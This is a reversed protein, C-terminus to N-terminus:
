HDHNKKTLMLFLQELQNSKNKLSVVEINHQLLLTILKGIGEKREIEVELTFPDKLILRFNDLQPLQLCAEKLFLIFSERNLKKLIKSMTTSEIITGQKIIAINRCLKEAEELYHTTLIITTGEQNVKKLFEWVIHRVEIDVGATPEDLILMKPQHVLARAILLRRKMGGSLYRVPDKRRKLLNLEALFKETLTKAKAWPVGYYGAQGMLVNEVTEFQNFNFEQPVIGIFAKAASFDKDIDFGYVKVNGATKNVLSTLIGILTSKGAGNPGLLGFFDGSTVTIDVGKLAQVGNNYTKTLNRIALAPLQINVTQM